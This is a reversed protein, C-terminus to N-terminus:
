GHQQLLDAVYRKAQECAARLSLKAALGAAIAAALACGTGRPMAQVRPASLRHVAGRATVLLDVAQPGSGHGGKLLVAAAGLQCLARAQALLETDTRAPRAELLAAAEPINPTLLAVRPLLARRLLREGAADILRGGSSSALVPDLVLPVRARPPLSALVAAVTARTALMGIKVAGIRRTDLAAAIQARVLQPPVAHVARLQTDTQATVATVACLVVGGCDRIAQVDRSLGAGGSSDVGAIVLVAAM